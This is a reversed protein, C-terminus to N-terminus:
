NLENLAWWLPPMGTFAFEWVLPAHVAIAPTDRAVVRFFNRNILSLADKLRRDENSSRARDV